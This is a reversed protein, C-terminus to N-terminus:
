KPFKVGHSELLTVLVRAHYDADKIEWLMSKIHAELQKLIKDM